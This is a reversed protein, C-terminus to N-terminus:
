RNLLGGLLGGLGANNKCHLPRLNSIHDAGGLASPHIHDKEWGYTSNRDGYDQYRIVHGFADYRWVAPDFNPIVQGKAWVALKLSEGTPNALLDAISLRSNGFLSNM